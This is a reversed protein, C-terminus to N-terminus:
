KRLAHVRLAIGRTFQSQTLEVCRHLSEVDDGTEVPGEM